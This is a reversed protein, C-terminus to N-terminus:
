SGLRNVLDPEQVRSESIEDAKEKKIQWKEQLTGIVNDPIARFRRM